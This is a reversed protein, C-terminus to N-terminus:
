QGIGSIVFHSRNVVAIDHVFLAQALDKARRLDILRLAVISNNTSWRGCVSHISSGNCFVFDRASFSLSIERFFIKVIRDFVGHKALPLFLLLTSALGLASM